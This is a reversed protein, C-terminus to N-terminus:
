ERREILEQSDNRANGVKADVKWATMEEAPYPRLLDVPLRTPDGPSLWRDYDKRPIIVPMRSHLPKIHFQGSTLSTHSTHHEQKATSGLLFM